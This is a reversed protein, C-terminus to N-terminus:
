QLYKKLLKNIMLNGVDIQMAPKTVDGDLKIAIENSAIELDVLADIKRNKTNLKAKKTAIDIHPSFLDMDILFNDRNIKMNLDGNFREKYPNFKTHKKLLKFLKNKSFVGNTLKSQLKGRATFIDYDLHADLSAKLIKPYSFRGLLDLTDLSLADLHLQTNHLKGQIKGAAIQTKMSMDFDKQYRILGSLPLDGQFKKGRVFFLKDVHPVFLTYDSTLIKTNMNYQTNKSTVNLLNSIFNIKSGITDGHFSSTTKLSFSNGKPIKYGFRNKVLVRNISGQHMTLQLTGDLQHEKINTFHVDCDIKANLYPKKGLMLVLTALDLNKSQVQLSVLDLDVFSLSYVSKSYALKSTGVIKINSLNGAINGQFYGRGDLRKKLLPKLTSLEKLDAIYNIDFKQRLLSYSGYLHMSNHPNLQLQIEFDKLSIRFKLLKSPMKTQIQIQKEIHPLLAKNGLPTFIFIYVFTFLVIIIGILWYLFKM